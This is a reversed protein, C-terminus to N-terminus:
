GLRTRVNRNKPRIKIRSRVLHTETDRYLTDCGKNVEMTLSGEDGRASSIVLPGRHGSMGEGLQAAHILQRILGVREGPLMQPPLAGYLDRTMAEGEEVSSEQLLGVFRPPRSESRGATAPDSATLIDSLINDVVNTAVDGEMGSQIAVSHLHATANLTNTHATAM